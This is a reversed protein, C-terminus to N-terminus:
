IKENTGEEKKNNYFMLKLDLFPQYVLQHKKAHANLWYYHNTIFAGPKETLSLVKKVLSTAVKAGRFLHKVYLYSMIPVDGELRFIVYGLYDSQSEPQSAVFIRSKNLVNKICPKYSDFFKDSGMLKFFDCKYFLSKAWSSLILEELMLESLNAERIEFLNNTQVRLPGM